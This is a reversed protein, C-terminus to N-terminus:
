RKEWKAPYEKTIITEKQNGFEFHKHEIIRTYPTKSDTYNVVANGQFNPKDLLEDEFRVSRYGLYGLDYEFFADILEELRHIHLLNNCVM